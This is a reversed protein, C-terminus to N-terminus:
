KKKHKTNEKRLPRSGLITTQKDADTRTETQRIDRATNQLAIANARREKKNHTFNWGWAGGGGQNQEALM